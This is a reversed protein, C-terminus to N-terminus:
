QPDLKDSDVVHQCDIQYIGILYGDVRIAGAHFTGLVSMPVDLVAKFGQGTTHVVVLENIRPMIGYCCAMRNPLLMSDTVLGGKWDVPVMFGTLAVAKGNFAKVEAPIQELVSKTAVEPDADRAAMEHTIKFDFSALQRYSLSGYQKGELTVFKPLENTAGGVFSSLTANTRGAAAMPPSGSSVAPGNTLLTASLEIKDGHMQAAVLMEPTVMLPALGILALLGACGLNKMINIRM